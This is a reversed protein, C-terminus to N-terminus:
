IDDDYLDERRFTFDDSIPGVQYASFHLPERVGVKHYDSEKELREDESIEPAIFRDSRLRDHLASREDIVIIVRHYGPPIDTTIKATLTGDSSLTALTEISRM